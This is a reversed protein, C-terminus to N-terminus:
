LSNSPAPINSQRGTSEAQHTPPSSVDLDAFYDLFLPHIFRYGSGDKYLLICHAADDLFRVARWPLVRAQWLWFRLVYHQLFAGLGFFLGILLGSYLGFFLGELLGFFLGGLLGFTPGSYLGAFVGYFVGAFPGVLLGNKASRRMGENPSLHLRETLQKGSMRTTLGRFLLFPAGGFLGIFLGYFLRSQIDKRSWTLVESPRIARLGFFLGFSVGGLLALPIGGLLGGLLGKSDGFLGFILVWALQEFLVVVLMVFLVVCLRYLPRQRKPLWDPQLQELFLVTQNHARMQQALWHLCHITHQLPFLSTEEQCELMRWVYQDFIQRQQEKMTGKKPLAQVSIGRYALTVIHLFLPTRVLERLEANKRLVSRIGALPKGADKLYADVEDESLPQIVVANQLVLHPQQKYYEHTRSCVILPVLHQRKFTNIANICASQAGKPVEDLGDLLPLIQDKQIWQAILSHPVDYSRAIEETLWDQLPKRANAWTSLNVIVPLPDHEDQTARQHLSQALKLLLTTKGSGPNGLLLLEGGNQDYVQLLSTGAPLAQGPLNKQRFQLRTSNIVAEPKSHLALKIPEAGELSRKLIDDYRSYLKALFRIRSQQELTPFHDPSSTSRGRRSGWWTIVSLLFVGLSLLVVLPLHPQIWGNWWQVVLLHNQVADTTLFLISPISGVLIAFVISVWFLRLVSWLRQCLRIWWTHSSPLKSGSPTTM